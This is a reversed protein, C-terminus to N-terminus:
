NFVEVWPVYNDVRAFGSLDVPMPPVAGAILASGCFEVNDPPTWGLSQGMAVVAGQTASVTLYYRTGANLNVDWALNRTNLGVVGGNLGSEGLFIAGAGFPQALYIGMRLECPPASVGTLYTRIYKATFARAVAIMGVYVTYEVGATGAFALENWTAGIGDYTAVRELVDAAAAGVSSGFGNGGIGHAGPFLSRLRM